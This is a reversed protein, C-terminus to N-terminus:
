CNVRTLTSCGFTGLKTRCLALTLLSICLACLPLVYAAWFDIHKEIFTTALTSLAGINVARESIDNLEVINANPHSEVSTGTTHM